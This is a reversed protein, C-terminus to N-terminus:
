FLLGSIVCVYKNSQLKDVTGQYDGSCSLLRSVLGEEKLLDHSAQTLGVLTVALLWPSARCLSYFSFYLMQNDSYLLYVCM